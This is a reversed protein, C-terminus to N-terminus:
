RRRRAITLGVLRDLGLHGETECIRAVLALYLMGAIQEIM